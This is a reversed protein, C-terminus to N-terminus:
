QLNTASIIKRVEGGTGSPGLSTDTLVYIENDTDQGFGKLYAGLPEDDAGIHFEFIEGDSLDTFFLRGSTSDEPALDGFVYQGSLVPAALTGHYVFGGIVAEGDEHTYEAVPDVLTPDPHNDPKVEGTKSNFLFSGEKQNWGYNSGAAGIDIEEINDQGVDAIVLQGSLADFSFRYPNRLGYVFIERVIPPLRFFFPNTVPIRYNKNKSVRDSSGATLKPDLPDIRIIKGLIVTTDQANGIVPTHGPGVDNANGGDGLSIYLYHDTALFAIHGGNHNFQPKNIRVIERRSAPDVANPDSQSVTWEAIVSQSDFPETDRVSFDAKQTLPESTYTYLKHFGPTSPDSFDPHFALGLLGREDYEPVLPVLRDTVDLFPSPLIAGNSLIKIKGTQEVIFLRGSGDGADQLDIPATLNDAVTQLEIQINGKSILQAGAQGAAPLLLLCVTISAVFYFRVFSRPAPRRVRAPSYLASLINRTNEM